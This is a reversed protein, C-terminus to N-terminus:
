AQEPKTSELKPNTIRLNKVKRVMIKLMPFLTGIGFLLFSSLWINSSSTFLAGSNLVGLILLTSFPFSLALIGIAYTSNFTKTEKETELGEVVSLHAFPWFSCASLGFSLMLLLDEQLPIRVWSVWLAVLFFVMGARIALLSFIQFFQKRKIRIALGIFLLVLPTMIFSLKSLSNRIVFPLSDMSYGLFLLLLAFGIFLNVPETVLTKLLSAIKAKSGTNANLNRAYYWRMAVMYLIILVFVKNGLDAMAAKALYTEGLFELVFPFCSLGPALSPLLLMATRYSSTDKLIGVLPLLLPMTAFLVLNFALAMLPLLLLNTKVEMGLLAIFITAPLALNLIIKKIGNVESPSKFKAKLLVGLLIFVLFVLTKEFGAQM